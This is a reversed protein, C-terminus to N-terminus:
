GTRGARRGMGRKWEDIAKALQQYRERVGQVDAGRDWPNWLVADGFSAAYDVLYETLERDLYLGWNIYKCWVESSSLLLSDWAAGVGPAVIGRQPVVVRIFGKSGLLGMSLEVGCADANVAEVRVHDIIPRERFICSTGLLSKLMEKQRERSSSDVMVFRARSVILM